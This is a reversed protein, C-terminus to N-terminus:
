KAPDPALLPVIDDEGPGDEAEGPVRVEVETGIVVVLGSPGVVKGGMVVGHLVGNLQM